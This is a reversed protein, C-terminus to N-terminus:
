ELSEERMGNRGKFKRLNKKLGRRMKLYCRDEEMGEYLKRIRENQRGVKKRRKREEMNEETNKMWREKNKKSLGGNKQKMEM